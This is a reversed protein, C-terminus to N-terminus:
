SSKRTAWRMSFFAWASMAAFVLVGAIALKILSFVAVGALLFASLAGLTAAAKKLIPPPFLVAVINAWASIGCVFFMASLARAM